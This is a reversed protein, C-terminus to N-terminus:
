TIKVISGNKMIKMESVFIVLDIYTVRLSKIYIRIWRFLQWKQPPPWKLGEVTVRTSINYLEWKNSNKEATKTLLNSTNPILQSKM